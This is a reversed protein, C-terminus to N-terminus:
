SVQGFAMHAKTMVQRGDDDDDTTRRYVSKSFDEGRFSSPWINQFKAHNNRLTKHVFSINSNKIRYFVHGDNSFISCLPLYASKALKGCVKVINHVHFTNKYYFCHESILPSSLKIKQAAM